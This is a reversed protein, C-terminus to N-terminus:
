WHKVQPLAKPLAFTIKESNSFNHVFVYGEPFNLWRVLDEVYITSEFLPIDFNVQAKLPTTGGFHSSLSVEM